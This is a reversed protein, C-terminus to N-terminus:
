LPGFEAGVKGVGNGVVHEPLHELPHRMGQTHRGHMARHGVEVM